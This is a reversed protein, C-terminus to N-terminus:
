IDHRRRQPLGMQISTCCCSIGLVAACACGDASVVCMCLYSSLCLCLCTGPCLSLCEWRPGVCVYQSGLFNGAAAKTHPKAQSQAPHADNMRFDRWESIFGMACGVLSPPHPLPHPLTPPTVLCVTGAPVVRECNSLGKARALYHHRRWSSSSSM